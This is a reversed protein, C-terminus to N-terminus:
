VGETENILESARKVEPRNERGIGVGYLSMFTKVIGLAENGRKLAKIADSVLGKIYQEQEEQDFLQDKPEVIGGHLHEKVAELVTITNLDLVTLSDLDAGKRARSKLEELNM